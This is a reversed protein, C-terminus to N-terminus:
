DKIVYKRTKWKGGLFYVVGVIMPMFGSLADGLWYGMYELHFVSGLLLGLGVRAVFADMIALAFNVRYNATGNVFANAPARFIVTIFNLILVPMYEMAVPLISTDKTFLMYVQTPFLLVVALLALTGIGAITLVVGLIKPVRKYEEAGVNQGVMSSGATNVSNSVLMPINIIKNSVGSVATYELGYQNIFSNIFLKSFSISAQKIAMPIGLKILTGFLQKDIRFDNKTIKFGLNDKRKVLFLLSWIFSVAQGIVTALAAGFTGMDMFMVFVIDLIINVVSSVAIFLFPHKSDGLGRLVASVANYGFIFLLGSLSVICYDMAYDYCETPTNMVNLIPYRFVLGITTMVVGCILLFVSLTGILQGVKNKQKAGVLQSIIISAANSFGMILMTFFHTIDGGISVGSIGVNGLVRGVIIMDVMNYVMQLLNGLFLPASFVILQKWINGSTFDTILDKKKTGTM